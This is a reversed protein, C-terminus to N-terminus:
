KLQQEKQSAQIGAATLSGSAKETLRAQESYKKKLAQYADRYEIEADQYLKVDHLMDEPDEEHQEPATPTKRVAIQSAVDQPPVIVIKGSDDSDRDASNVASNTSGRPQAIIPNETDEVQELAAKFALNLNTGREGESVLPENGVTCSLPKNSNQAPQEADPAITEVLSRWLYRAM